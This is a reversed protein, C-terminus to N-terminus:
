KQPHGEFRSPLFPPSLVHETWVPLHVFATESSKRDLRYLVAM